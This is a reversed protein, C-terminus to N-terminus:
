SFACSETVLKVVEARQCDSPSDLRVHRSDKKSDGLLLGEPDALDAGLIFGLNVHDKGGYLYFVPSDKSRGYTPVGWKMFEEIDSASGLILERASQLSDKVEGSFGDIYDSVTKAAM